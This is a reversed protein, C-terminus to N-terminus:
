GQCSEGGLTDDMCNGTVAPQPVCTNPNSGCKVGVRTCSGAIASSFATMGYQGSSAGHVSWVTIIGTTTDTCNWLSGSPGTCKMTSPSCCDVPPLLAYCSGGGGTSGGGNTASVFAALGAAFAVTRMVIACSRRHILDKM